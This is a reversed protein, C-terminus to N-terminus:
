ALTMLGASSDPTLTFPGGDGNQPFGETSYGLVRNSTADYLLMGTAPGTAAAVASGWVGSAGTMEVRLDTADASLTPTGIVRESYGSGDYEDLTLDTLVTATARKAVADNGGMLLKARLDIASLDLNAQAIAYLTQLFWFKM